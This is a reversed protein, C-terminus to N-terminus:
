ANARHAASCTNEHHHTCAVKDIIIGCLAADAAILLPAIWKTNRPNYAIDYAQSLLSMAGPTNHHFGEPNTTTM